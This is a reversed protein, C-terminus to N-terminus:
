VNAERWVAELIEAREIVWRVAEKQKQKDKFKGALISGDLSISIDGDPSIAHFHPLEHNNEKRMEIYFGKGRFIIPM